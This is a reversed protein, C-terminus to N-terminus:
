GYRRHQDQARAAGLFVGGARAKPMREVGAVVDVVVAFGVVFLLYLEGLVILVVIRLTEKHMRGLSESVVFGFLGGTVPM